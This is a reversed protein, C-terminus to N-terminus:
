QSDEGNEDEIVIDLEKYTFPAYQVDIAKDYIEITGKKQIYKNQDSYTIYLKVGDDRTKYYETIIM